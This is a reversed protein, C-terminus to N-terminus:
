RYLGQINRGLSVIVPVRNNFSSNINILSRTSTSGSGSGSGNEETHRRRTSEAEEEKAEERRRQRELEHRTTAGTKRRKRANEKQEQQEKQEQRTKTVKRKKKVTKTKQEKKRKGRSSANTKSDSDSSDSDNSDDTDDEEEEDKDDDDDDDSDDTINDDDDSDSGDRKRKKARALRKKEKEKAQKIEQKKEEIEKLRKAELKKEKAAKVRAVSLRKAMRLDIYERLHEIRVLLAPIGDLAWQELPCVEPEELTSVRVVVAATPYRKLTHHFLFRTLALQIQKQNYPCDNHGETSHERMPANEYPPKLKANSLTWAGEYATLEVMLEEVCTVRKNTIPFFKTYIFCWLNDVGTAIGREVSGVPVNAATPLYRGSGPIVISGDNNSTHATTNPLVTTTALLMFKIFEQALPHACRLRHRTPQMGAKLMLAFVQKDQKYCPFGQIGKRQILARTHRDILDGREYGTISGKAEKERKPKGDLTFKPRDLGIAVERRRKSRADEICSQYDYDPWEAALLLKTIGKMVIPKTRNGADYVFCQRFERKDYKFNSTYRFLKDDRSVSMNEDKDDDEDDVDADERSPSSPEPDESM